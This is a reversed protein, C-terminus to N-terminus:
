TSVGGQALNLVKKLTFFISTGEDLKSEVWIDGNHGEIIQKAIALGLGSGGTNRNRSPDARYFRDFIFPLDEESIGQGNDKIQVRVATEEEKLIVAIEGTDKDMYKIANQVINTVVRKLKERDATIETNEPLDSIFDLRMKREQLDMQLEEICDEFYQKINIKEFNFPIKKLDLKSFLFLDDILRDMDTAKSYITRVYKDVKEPSNAVGDMIGEVYGKIATIPTKLDHSISSILEKRNEEYQLQLEISDKLKKRMEEFAVCVEGIEDRSSVKVEFNLNGDKIQETGHKLVKLPKIISKSVFYTIVGNTLMLIILVAWGLAHIYEGIFEGIKSFDAIIFTSGKTGDKFVFDHQKVSLEKDGIEISSFHDSIGSRHKPLKNIVLSEIKIGNTYIIDEGHRVLFDINVTKFEKGIKDVYEKDKLKESDYSATRDIESVLGIVKEPVDKLFDSGLRKDYMMGMFSAFLILAAIISLAIPIIVMALYSLVLRVRISM